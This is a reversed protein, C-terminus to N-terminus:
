YDTRTLYFRQSPSGPTYSFIGTFKILDGTVGTIDGDTGSFLFNTPWTITKVGSGGVRIIIAIEQGLEPTGDLTLTLDQDGAASFYLYLCSGNSNDNAGGFEWDYTDTPTGTVAKYAHSKRFNGEIWGYESVIGGDGRLHGRHVFEGVENFGGWTLAKINGLDTGAYTDYITGAAFIPPIVEPGGAEQDLGLYPPTSVVFNGFKAGSSVHEYNPGGISSIFQIWRLTVTTSSPFTVSSGGATAGLPLLTVRTDSALSDIIFVQKEGSLFTLELFDLGFRISTEGSVAFYNPSAIDVSLASSVTTASCGAPIRVSQSYPTLGGVDKERVVVMGAYQRGPRTQENTSTAQKETTIALFGISGSKDPDLAGVETGGISSRWGALYPDPYLTDDAPLPAYTAEPAVVEPALGDRQIIAGAGPTDVTGSSTGTKLRYVGDLGRRTIDGVTSVWPDNWNPSGSSEHLDALLEQLAALQAEAANPGPPVINPKGQGIIYDSIRKTSPM